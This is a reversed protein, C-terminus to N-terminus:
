LWRLKFLVADSPHKFAIFYNIEIETHQMLKIDENVPLCVKINGTQYKSIHNDEVWKSFKTPLSRCDIKLYLRSDVKSSLSLIEREYFIRTWEETM